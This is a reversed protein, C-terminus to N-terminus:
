AQQTLGVHESAPVCKSLMVIHITMLLPVHLKVPFLELQAYKEFFKGAQSAAHM